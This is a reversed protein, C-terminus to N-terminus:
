GIRKIACYSAPTSSVLNGASNHWIFVEIYDGASLVLTTSAIAVLKNDSSALVKGAPSREVGTGNKYIKVIAGFGAASSLGQLSAAAVIDYIGDAAAVWRNNTVLDVEDLNDYEVAAFPLKTWTSAVATDSAYFTAKSRSEFGGAVKKGSSWM